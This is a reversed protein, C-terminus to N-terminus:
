GLQYRRRLDRLLGFIIPWFVLALVPSAFYLWLNQPARGVMGSIWLVLAQKGLLLLTVVVAQQPVPMVRLRQHERLAFGAVLVIGLAHQGLLTGHAVDLLVGVIWALTLGFSQPLAICWYLVVLTVWDPRFPQAADPLPMVVLMLAVILTLPILWWRASM